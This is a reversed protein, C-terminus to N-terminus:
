RVNEQTTETKARTRGLRRAWEDVVRARGEATTEAGSELLFASQSARTLTEHMSRFVSPESEREVAAFLVEIARDPTLRRAQGAAIGRNEPDPDQLAIAIVKELEAGLGLLCRLAELRLGPDVDRRLVHFLDVEISPVQQAHETLIALANARAGKDESRRLRYRLETPSFSVRQGLAQEEVLAKKLSSVVASDIFTADKTLPELMRLADEFRGLSRFCWVAQLRADDVIGRARDRAGLEAVPLLIGLADENRGEYRLAKGLMLELEPHRERVRLAKKLVTELREPQYRDLLHRELMRCAEVGIPGEVLSALLREGEREDVAAEAAGTRSSPELLCYALSFTWDPVQPFRAHLERFKQIAKADEGSRRLVFGLMQHAGVHAPEEALIEELLVRADEHRALDDTLGKARALTSVRSTASPLLDLEPPRDAYSQALLQSAQGLEELYEALKADDVGAFVDPGSVRDRQETLAVDVGIRRAFAELATGPRAAHTKASGTVLGCGALLMSAAGALVATPTGHSISRHSRFSVSPM